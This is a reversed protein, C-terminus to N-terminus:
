ERIEVDQVHVIKQDRVLAVKMTLTNADVWYIKSGQTGLTTANFNEKFVITEGLKGNNLKAGLLQNGGREIWYVYGAKPNYALVTAPFTKPSLTKSLLLEDNKLTARRLHLSDDIWLLQAESYNGGSLRTIAVKEKTGLTVTESLKHDQITSRKLLNTDKEVWYLTNYDTLIAQSGTFNEALVKINLVIHGTRMQGRKLQNTDKDIWLLAKHEAPGVGCLSDINLQRPQAFTVSFGFILTIILLKRM